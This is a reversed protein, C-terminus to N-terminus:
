AAQQEGKISELLRATVFNNSSSQDCQDTYFNAEVASRYVALRALERSNFFYTTTEIEPLTQLSV